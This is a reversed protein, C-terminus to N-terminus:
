YFTRDHIHMFNRFTFTADPFSAYFNWLKSSLLEIRMRTLAYVTFLVILSHFLTDIVCLCQVLRCYTTLRVKFSILALNHSKMLVHNRSIVEAPQVFHFYSSLVM